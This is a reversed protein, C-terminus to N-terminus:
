APGPRQSEPLLEPLNTQIDAFFPIMSADMVDTKDVLKQLRTKILRNLNPGKSKGKKDEGDANEGDEDLPILKNYTKHVIKQFILTFVFLLLM